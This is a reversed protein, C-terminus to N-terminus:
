NKKIWIKINKFLYNFSSIINNDIADKTNYIYEFQKNIFVDPIKSLFNIKYKKIEEESIYRTKVYNDNFKYM